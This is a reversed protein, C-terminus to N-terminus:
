YVMRRLGQVAMRETTRLLSSKLLVQNGKFPKPTASNFGVCRFVDRHNDLFECLRRFRRVVLMDPRLKDQSLLEFNHSVLVISSFGAEAAQWLMSRLESFSCATVQLHRLSLGDHFISVPLICGNKSSFCQYNAKGNGVDAIGVSSSLNYSTDTHINVNKLAQLTDSNVSYSGSRFANIEEVGAKRLQEIGVKLLHTQEKCTFQSLKCCRNYINTLLPERAENIWEPHLHLQVEQDADRIVGVLEDLPAQGFHSSFLTEVFFSAEIGYTNLIDLTAPLAYNGQPTPGYVYRRFSDSFSEDIDTWGGCWVETDITIYVDLM